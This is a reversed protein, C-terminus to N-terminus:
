NLQFVEVLGVGTASGNGRLIITYSGPAASVKIAAEHSDSPALGTAQILEPQTDAWDNNEAVLVGNSDHLELVPDTLPHQIGASGLSPGLGRALVFSDTGSGIIIGSILVGDGTGVFGRTSVNGLASGANDLDFIEELAVGTAGNKGNMVVTYAGPPLTQVIASESDNSPQLSTAAIEAQQTDKWNDNSALLAGTSDYLALTPDTLTGAVGYQTLSPGLARVIVKKASNGTIIFGNILVNEGTGVTGRTSFNLPKGPAQLAAVNDALGTMAVGILTRNRLIQLNTGGVQARVPAALQQGGATEDATNKSITTDTSGGLDITLFQKYGQGSTVFSFYNGAISFNTSASEGIRLGYSASGYNPVRNQLNFSNGAINVDQKTWSAQAGSFGVGLWGRVVKNNLIQIRESTGTDQYYAGLCDVFTNDHIRCDKLDAGNVGGSTFGVLSGGNNLGAAYNGYFATNVLFHGGGGHLAFPAGYNGRPLEARCYRITNGTADATNSSTLHIGFCESLNAWSGYSNIQRVREILNNSGALSIAYVSGWKEGGTVTDATLSLESWNCDVTLDRIVVNDTSVNPNTKFFQVDWRVGAVNGMMQCTTTNMGAGQIVLGSQVVWRNVMVVNSRFTGPGLHITLNPTWQLNVMLSDFKTQTSGDYPDSATGSGGSISPVASIWVEPRSTDAAARCLAIFVVLSFMM